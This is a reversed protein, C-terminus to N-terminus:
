DKTILIAYRDIEYQLFNNKIKGLQQYNIKLSNCLEKQAEHEQEGQNIIFFKGDQELSDYAHKLMNMPQFYKEPLGWKLLPYDVVFPLIWIIYNYKENHELFDAHIYECEDLGKTHYKAVEKRTYLNSYLRNADLEIGILNLNKCYKKLFFYEGKAYFWNKCGIDLAKMEDLFDIEFFRDLIDITYLNECYNQVTSNSKLATLDYKKVLAKEREILKSDTFIAEKPENKVFFNKRSFEFHQRLFFDINNKLNIFFYEM